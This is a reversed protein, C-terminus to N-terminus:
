LIADPRDIHYGYELPTRDSLALLFNRDRVTLSNPYFYSVYAAYNEDIYGNRILYKLLNFSKSNQIKEIYGNSEYAPLVPNWFKGESEQDLQSILDKITYTSLHMKKKELKKIDQPFKEISIQRNEIIKKRQIYESIKEMNSIRTAVNLPSSYYSQRYQVNDPNQIVKKVLETRNLNGVREGNISSIEESLPFFLANLEDISKLNEKEFMTINQRLEAIKADIQKCKTELLIRKNELVAFVYGQGHHLLDFDGPYLTKYIVMALQRDSQTALGSSSLRGHYVIYENVINTILRMDSLYLSVDQLFRKNFTNSLGAEDFRQLLQDCSNSADVYPVVPIIFDFFKSRDSATFIDDRIM